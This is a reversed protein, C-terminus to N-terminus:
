WLWVRAMALYLPLGLAFLISSVVVGMAVQQPKCEYLAALSVNNVAMPVILQLFLVLGALPALPLFPIVLLALLPLLLLKGAVSSALLERQTQRFEVQCLYVGFLFLQLVLSAYAGMKLSNEFASPISIEGVNLALAVMAASVIPLKFINKLSEQLSFRGRSYFYVGVTYVFFINVIAILSAYYVSEEGLIAVSLPIGINGTNGVTAGMLLISRDKEESFRWSAYLWAIGLGALTLALYFLPLALSEGSLKQRTLGWMALFPQLFYVSVIVLTRESLQESFLRKSLFGLGVFLYIAAMAILIEGM